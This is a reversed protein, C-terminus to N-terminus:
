VCMAGAREECENKRKCSARWPMRKQIHVHIHIYIHANTHFHIQIQIQIHMHVYMHMHIHIYTFVDIHIRLHTYAYTHAHTRTSEVCVDSECMRVCESQMTYLAAMTTGLTLVDLIFVCVCM